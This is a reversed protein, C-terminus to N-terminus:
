RNDDVGQTELHDENKPNEGWVNEVCKQKEKQATNRAWRMVKKIM